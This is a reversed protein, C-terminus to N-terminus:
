LTRMSRVRGGEEVGKRMDEWGGQVKTQDKCAGHQHGGPLKQM